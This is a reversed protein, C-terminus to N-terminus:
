SNVIVFQPSEGSQGVTSAWDGNDKAAVGGKQALVGRSEGQRGAVQGAWQTPEAETYDHHLFCAVYRDKEIEHLAPVQEECVPMKQPCRTHFRCGSPPDVNSPIEGPISQIGSRQHPDPIAALLALTYPHLPGSFLAEALAVEVIRGLYMVAVWDSVLRVVSLDHSIFLYTLHFQQQLDVLLNLIKAQISMDLASVPEDCIVLKPNLALARAIAIRQRQGGSFASPLRNTDKSPLGVADLLDRAREQIERNSGRRNIKLPEAVIREVSLRPNLSTYPDQFVVQVKPRFQRLTNGKLHTIDQNEFRIKGDTPELLRAIVRGITTKGCGSEGVLGLTQGAQVSFSVGDVARVFQREQGPFWGGIPFYM